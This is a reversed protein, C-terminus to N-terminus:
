ESPRFAYKAERLQQFLESDSPVPLPDAARIAREVAADYAPVGSSKILRIDLVEGGPLLTVSYIATPNGPINPPVVVRGRVKLKIRDIYQNLLKQKAAAALSIMTLATDEDRPQRIRCQSSAISNTM